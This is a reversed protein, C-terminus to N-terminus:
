HIIFFLWKPRNKLIPLRTELALCILSLSKMLRRKSRLRGIIKRLLHSKNSSKSNFVNTYTRKAQIRQSVHDQQPFMVM